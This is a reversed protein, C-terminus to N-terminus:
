PGSSGSDRWKKQLIEKKEAADLVISCSEWDVKEVQSYRINFPHDEPLSDIIKEAQEREGFAEAVWM